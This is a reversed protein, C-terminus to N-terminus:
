CTHLNPKSTLKYVLELPCLKVKEAHVILTRYINKNSNPGLEILATMFGTALEDSRSFLVVRCTDIYKSFDPGHICEEM